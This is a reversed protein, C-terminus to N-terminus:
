VVSKRDIYQLVHGREHDGIRTKPEVCWGARHAYSTCLSNLHTNTNLIVNGLTMAGGPGWPFCHFLLAFDGREFRPRAGFPTAILGVILGALSYPLAWVAGFVIFLVRLVSKM